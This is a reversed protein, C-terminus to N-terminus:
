IIGKEQLDSQLLIFADTCSNTQLAPNNDYMESIVKYTDADACNEVMSLFESVLDEPSRNDIPSVGTLRNKHTEFLHAWTESKKQKHGSPLEWVGKGWKNAFDVSYKMFVKKDAMEGLDKNVSARTPMEPPKMTDADKTDDICFLGNLAYKRAYSSTAGTLQALDMGKKDAPERAYAKVIAEDAMAGTFENKRLKAEAVVYYRDGIMEISDTILLYCENQELLPKLAELIDECSRYKYKGFANTQGKPAKLASQILQLEKM